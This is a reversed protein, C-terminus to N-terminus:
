IIGDLGSEIFYRFLLAAAGHMQRIAGYMQYRAGYMQREAGYMQLGAGRKNRGYFRTFSIGITFSGYAGPTRIIMHNDPYCVRRLCALGTVFGVYVRWVRWFGIHFDQKAAVPEGRIGGLVGKKLGRLFFSRALSGKYPLDGRLCAFGWCFCFASYLGNTANM